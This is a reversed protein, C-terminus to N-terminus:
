LLPVGALPKGRYGMFGLGFFGIVSMTHARGGCYRDASPGKAIPHDLEHIQQELEAALDRLNKNRLATLSSV